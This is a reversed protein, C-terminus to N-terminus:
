KGNITQGNTRSSASLPTSLYGVTYRLNHRRSLDGMKDYFIGQKNRTVYKLNQRFNHYGSWSTITAIKM